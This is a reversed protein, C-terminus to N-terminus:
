KDLKQIMKATIFGGVAAAVGFVVLCRTRKLSIPQKMAMSGLSVALFAPLFTGGLMLYTKDLKNM